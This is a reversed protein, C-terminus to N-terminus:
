DAGGSRDQRKTKEKRLQRRIKSITLDIAEYLDKAETDAEITTHNSCHLIIEAIKTFRQHDLIVKADMIRPEELQIARLKGEAYDRLADTLDMHRASIEIPFDNM